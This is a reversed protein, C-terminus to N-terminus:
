ISFLYSLFFNTKMTRLIFIKSVYLKKEFSIKLLKKKKKSVWCIDNNKLQNEMSFFIFEWHDNLIQQKSFRSKFLLFELIWWYDIYKSNDFLHWHHMTYFLLVHVINLWFKASFLIIISIEVLHISYQQQHAHKEM